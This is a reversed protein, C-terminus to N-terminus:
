RRTLRKVFALEPYKIKWECNGTQHDDGHCFEYSPAPALLLVMMKTTMIRLLSKWKADPAVFKWIIRELYTSSWEKPSPSQSVIRSGATKLIEEVELLDDRFKVNAIEIAREATAKNQPQRFVILISRVPDYVVEQDFLLDVDRKRGM